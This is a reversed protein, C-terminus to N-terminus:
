DVIGADTKAWALRRKLEKESMTRIAFHAAEMSNFVVPTPIPEAEPGDAPRFALRAGHKLHAAIQEVAVPHWARGAPDTIEREAAGEIRGEALGVDTM